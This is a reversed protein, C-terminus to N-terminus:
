VASSMPARRLGVSPDRISARVSKPNMIPVRCSARASVSRSRDSWSRARPTSVARFRSSSQAQVGLACPGQRRLADSPQLLVSLKRVASNSHRAAFALLSPGHLGKVFTLEHRKDPFALFELADDDVGGTQHLDLNGDRVSLASRRKTADM